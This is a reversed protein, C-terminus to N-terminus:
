TQTEIYHAIDSMLRGEVLVEPNQATLWDELEDITEVPMLVQNPIEITEAKM